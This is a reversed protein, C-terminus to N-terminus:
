LAPLQNIEESFVIVTKDHREFNTLCWHRLMADNDVAVHVWDVLLRVTYRQFLPFYDLFLTVFHEIIVGDLRCAM